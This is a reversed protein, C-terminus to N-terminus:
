FGFTQSAREMWRIEDASPGAPVNMRRAGPSTLRANAQKAQFSDRSAKGNYTGTIRPRYIDVDFGDPDALAVTASGLVMVAALATTIRTLMTMEM